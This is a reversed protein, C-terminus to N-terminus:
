YMGARPFAVPKPVENGERDFFTSEIIRGNESTWRKWPMGEPFYDTVESTMGKIREEQSLNGNRYWSKRGVIRGKDFTITCLVAGNALTTTVVGTGNELSSCISGDPLYFKGSEVQEHRIKLGDTQTEVYVRSHERLNGNPYYSKLEVYGPVKQVQAEFKCGLENGTMAYYHRHGDFKLTYYSTNGDLTKSSHPIWRTASLAIATIAALRFMSGITLKFHKM